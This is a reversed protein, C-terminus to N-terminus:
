LELPIKEKEKDTYFIQVMDEDPIELVQRIKKLTQITTKEENKEIRQLQRTSLNLIEALQEQTYGKKLRYEKIM